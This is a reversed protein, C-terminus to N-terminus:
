VYTDTLANNKEISNSSVEVQKASVISPTFISLLPFIVPIFFSLWITRRLRVSVSNIINKKMNNCIDKEHKSISIFWIERSNFWALFRSNWM